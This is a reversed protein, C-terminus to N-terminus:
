PSPFDNQSSFLKTLPHSKIKLPLHVPKGNLSASQYIAFIIELARLGDIGSSLPESNNELANIVELIAGTFPDSNRLYAPFPQRTLDKFGTYMHSESAVYYAEIGNGIQIRGREFQLDLEFNFYDRLGGAEIAINVGNESKMLATATSEAGFDPHERDISGHLTKIEGTFYRILDILHTGDHFLPGGGAKNLVTEWPGQPISQSLVNGYIFKLRGLTQNDIIEKTKQYPPCWRREHNVVLKVNYERCTDTVQHAQPLNITIPKELVIGKVGNQAAFVAIDRHSSTWTAIIVIEPKEKRILARYDTYAAPIHYREQCRKLNETNTDCIAVLEVGQPVCHTSIIKQIGGMHTAPKSRLPDDELWVGVRGCGILAIRYAM